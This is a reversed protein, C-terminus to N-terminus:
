VKFLTLEYYKDKLKKEIEVMQDFNEFYGQVKKLFFFFFYTIFKKVSKSILIKTIKKKM